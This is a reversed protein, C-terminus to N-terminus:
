LVRWLVWGVFYALGFTLLVALVTTLWYCGECRPKRSIQTWRHITFPPKMSAVVDRQAQRHMHM